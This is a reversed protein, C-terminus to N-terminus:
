VVLIQKMRGAELYCLTTEDIWSRSLLYRKMRGDEIEVVNSTNERPFDPPIDIVQVWVQQCLSDM